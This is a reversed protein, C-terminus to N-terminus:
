FPKPPSIIERNWGKVRVTAVIQYRGSHTLMFYPALDVRKTAVKSSELVFAGLVPAEGMKPVVTGEHSELSFTLWDEEGGLKLEQGSLNTIRVAVKLSEGPLFQEQVQTVEVTVQATACGISAMILGLFLGTTKM